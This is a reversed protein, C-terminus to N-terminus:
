DEYVLGIDARAGASKNPRVTVQIQHDPGFPVFRGKTTFNLPNGSKSDFTPAATNVVLAVSDGDVVVKARAQPKTAQSM